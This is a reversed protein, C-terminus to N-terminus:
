SEVLIRRPFWSKRPSGLVVFSGSTATSQRLPSLECSLSRTAQTVGRLQADTRSRRAEASEEGLQRGLEISGAQGWVDSIRQQCLSGPHLETNESAIALQERTEPAASQLESLAETLVQPTGNRERPSQSPNAM